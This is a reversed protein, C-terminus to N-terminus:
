RKERRTRMLQFEKATLKALGYESTGIAIGANRERFGEFTRQGSPQYIFVPAGSDAPIGTVSESIERCVSFSYFTPKKIGQIMEYNRAGKVYLIDSNGLTKAVTTSMKRGNFCGLRPGDEIITIRKEDSAFLRSLYNFLPLNILEICEKYSIDNGYCDKRPILSISIAPNSQLLAEVLKLDFISEIYDDLIFSIHLSSKENLVMDLFTLRDDIAPAHQGKTHLQALANVYDSKKLSSLPIRIINKLNIPSAATASTKYDLGILGSLCSITLLKNVSLDDKELHNIIWLAIKRGTNKMLTYVNFAYEPDGVLFGAEIRRFIDDFEQNYIVDCFKKGSSYADELVNIVGEALDSEQLCKLERKVSLPHKKLSKLQLIHENVISTVWDHFPLRDHNSLFNPLLKRESIIFTGPCYDPNFLIKQLAVPACDNPIGLISNCIQPFTIGLKKQSVKKVLQRTASNM